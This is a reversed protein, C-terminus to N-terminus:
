IPVAKSVDLTIPAHDPHVAVIMPKDNRYYLLLQWPIEPREVAPLDAIKLFGRRVTEELQDCVSM